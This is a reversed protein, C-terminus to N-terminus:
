EARVFLMKHIKRCSEQLLLDWPLKSLINLINLYLIRSQENSPQFRARTYKRHVCDFNQREQTARIIYEGKKLAEQKKDM